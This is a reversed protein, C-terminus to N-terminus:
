FCNNKLFNELMAKGLFLRDAADENVDGFQYYYGSYGLNFKFKYDDHNFYRLSLEDQLRILEHVDNPIMRTGHPAVFIDDIDIQVYRDLSIEIEGDTLYHIADMFLPKLLWIGDLNDTSIFVHKIGNIISVFLIDELTNNSTECQLISISNETKFNRFDRNLNLVRNINIYQTNYKTTHLFDKSIIEENLKCKSVNVKDLNDTGTDFALVGIKRKKLNNIFSSNKVESQYHSYNQFLIVTTQKLILEHISNKRLYNIKTLHLLNALDLRLEKRSDRTMIVLNKLTRKSIHSSEYDIKYSNKSVPCVYNKTKFLMLNVNDSTNIEISSNTEFFNFRLKNGEYNIQNISNVHDSAIMTYNSGSFNLNSSTKRVNKNKLFNISIIVTSLLLFVKIQHKRLSLRM